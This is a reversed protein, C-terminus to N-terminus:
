NRSRSKANPKKWDASSPKVRDIDIFFVEDYSGLDSIREEMQEGLRQDRMHFTLGTEVGEFTIMEGELVVVEYDDLPLKKLIALEVYFYFDDAADTQMEIETYDDVRHKEIAKAFYKRADFVRATTHGDPKKFFRVHTNHRADQKKIQKLGDKNLLFTTREPSGILQEFDEIKALPDYGADFQEFKGKLFAACSYVGASEFDQNLYGEIAIGRYAGRKGEGFVVFRRPPLIMFFDNLSAFPSLAKQSIRSVKM